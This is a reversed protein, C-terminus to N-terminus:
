VHPPQVSEEGFVLHPTIHHLGYAARQRPPDACWDREARRRRREVYRRRRHSTRRGLCAHIAFRDKEDPVARLRIPPTESTKTICNPAWGTTLTRNRHELDWS